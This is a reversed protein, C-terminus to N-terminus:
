VRRKQEWTEQLAAQYRRDAEEDLVCSAGFYIFGLARRHLVPSENNGAWHVTRADHALAHGAKCPFKRIANPDFDDPSISRSFGLTGSAGHSRIGDKHSGRLYHVCGQEESVDQLAFWITVANMPEIPFYAGDQHPPTPSNSGPAKDFYQMNWARPEEGLVTKALQYFPGKLLYKGLVPDYDQLRQLQKLSTLDARDEYYVATSPMGPVVSRLCDDLELQVQQLAELGLFAPISVYGDRQYDQRIQTAELQSHTSSM